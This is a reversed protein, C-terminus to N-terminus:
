ATAEKKEGKRGAIRSARPVKWPQATAKTILTGGRFWFHDCKKCRWVKSLGIHSELGMPFGKTHEDAVLVSSCFPCSPNM